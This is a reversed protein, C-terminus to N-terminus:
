GIRRKLWKTKEQHYDSTMNNWNSGSRYHLLTSGGVYFEDINEALSHHSLLESVRVEPHANLYQSTQGGVDVPVGHVQGCYWNLNKPEPISPLNVMFFANWLYKIVGGDPSPRHQPIGCIDYGRLAELLSIPQVMFLDSDFVAIPQQEKSIVHEWAWCLPYACAVNANFYQGLGDFITCSSETSQCKDLVASDKEIDISRVGERECAQRVAEYSAGRNDFRANNFVVFEFDDRLYKRFSHLQLGIFDPRHAAFTFIKIM